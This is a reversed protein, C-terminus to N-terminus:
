LSSKTFPHQKYATFSVEIGMKGLEQKIKELALNAEATNLPRTEYLRDISVKVQLTDVCETDIDLLEYPSFMQNFAGVGEDRKVKSAERVQKVQEPSCGIRQAIKAAETPSKSKYAISILFNNGIIM